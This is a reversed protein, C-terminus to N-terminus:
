CASHPRNWLARWRALISAALVMLLPDFPLRFRIRTFVLASTLANGWYLVHLAIEPPTLSSKRKFMLGAAALALLPYYTGAMVASRFPTQEERVYLDNRYHFHNVVKAAYLKMWAGPNNTAWAMAERRCHADMEAENMGKTGALYSSVDTNVGSNPGSQASNGILLNLGGNTSVPIIRGFIRGNRWTWPAIIATACLLVLLSRLLFRRWERSGAIAAGSLILPTVLMFSPIALILLGLLIGALLGHWILSGRRWLLVLIAALLLTGWTQPYLTSATYLGLPYGLMLLPVLPRASPHIRAALVSLLAAAGAYAAANFVKAAVPHPWLQYVGALIMPWGPPRFATPAGEPTTYGNGAVLSRALADYAREDPYRLRDGGFVGVAATVMFVLLVLAHVIRRSRAAADSGSPASHQPSEM